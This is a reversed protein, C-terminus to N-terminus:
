KLAVSSPLNLISLKSKTSTDIDRPRRVFTSGKAYESIYLSQVIGPRFQSTPYKISANDYAEIGEPGDHEKPKVRTAPRRHLIYQEVCEM